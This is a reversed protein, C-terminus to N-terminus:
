GDLTALWAAGVVGADGGLLAPRIVVRDRGPPLARTRVEERVAAFLPEGIRSVGGGIVVLTAGLLNVASAVGIGLYRFAKRLVEASLADGQAAAEAVLRADIRSCDGRALALAATPRGERIAEVVQRAIASGSSVAELCGRAGCGCLPGDPEVTVHGLEGAGGSPGRYIRGEMILGAGIGTSVTIYVLDAVGGRRAEGLAAANADNDLVVPRDLEASLLDRLPVDTWGLNPPRVLLGRDADLPGPAGLGVATVSEWAEGAVQRVLAAARRLWSAVGERPNTPVEGRRLLVGAPSVLGVATKTGGM